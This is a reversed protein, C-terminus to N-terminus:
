DEQSAVLTIPAELYSKMTGLFDAADAGDLARHDASLTLRVMPAMVMEEHEDVVVEGRVTGVALVAVQPPTIIAGFSEVGLMGMNSITFTGGDMDEDTLKGSHAKLVMEAANLGLDKVSKGACNRLVPYYLGSETEVALSINVESLEVAEDDIFHSNIWPHEQLARTTAALIFDNITVGLDSRFRIVDTMDVAVTVFFHPASQWSKEMKRAILRRVKVSKRPAGADHEAAAYNSTAAVDQPLEEESDYEMQQDTLEESIVSEIDAMEDPGITDSEDIALAESEGDDAVTAFGSVEEAEAPTQEYSSVLGSTEDVVPTDDSVVTGAPNETSSEDFDSAFEEEGESGPVDIDNEDNGPLPVDGASPGEMANMDPTAFAAEENEGTGSEMETTPFDELFPGEEGAETATAEFSDSTYDDAAASTGTEEDESGLAAANIEVEVDDPAAWSAAHAVEEQDHEETDSNLEDEALEDEALEDEALEDEALEDEALEDEASEDEAPEEEGSATEDLAEDSEEAVPPEDKEEGSEEDTEAVTQDEIMDEGATPVADEGPLNEEADPGAQEETVDENLAAAPETVSAEVTEITPESQDEASDGDPEGETLDDASEEAIGSEAADPNVGAARVVEKEEDSPMRSSFDGDFNMLDDVDEPTIFQSTSQLSAEVDEREIRGCMGTGTVTELNINNQKALEIAAPAALIHGYQVVADGSEAGAPSDATASVPESPEGFAETLYETEEEQDPSNEEKGDSDDEEELDTEDVTQMAIVTAVPVAQGAHVWIEAIKGPADAKLELTDMDVEVDAIIQNKQVVDGVAVRWKAIRGEDSYESVKPMRIESRMLM